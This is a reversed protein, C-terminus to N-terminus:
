QPPLDGGPNLFLSEACKIAGHELEQVAEGPTGTIARAIASLSSYPNAEWVYGEPEVTVIRRRSGNRYRARSLCHDSHKPSASWPM